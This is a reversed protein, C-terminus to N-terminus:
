TNKLTNFYILVSKTAPPIFSIIQKSLFVFEILLSALNQTYAVYFQRSAYKTNTKM